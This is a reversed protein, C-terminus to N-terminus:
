ARVAECRTLEVYAPKAFHNRRVAVVAAYVVGATGGILMPMQRAYLGFGINILCLLVIAALRLKDQHKEM